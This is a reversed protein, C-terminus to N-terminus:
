AVESETEVYATTEWGFDDVALDSEYTCKDCLDLFEGTEKDKRRLEHDALITDCARCRM